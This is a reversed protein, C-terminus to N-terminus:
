ESVDARYVNACWTAAYLYGDRYTLDVVNKIPLDGTIEIWEAGGNKSHWVSGTNFWVPYTKATSVFIEDTDAPNFAVSYVYELTDEGLNPLDPFTRSFTHGHDESKYLGDDYVAFVTGDELAVIQQVSSYSLDVDNGEALHWKKGGNESYWLGDWYLGAFIRNSDTPDVELCKILRDEGAEGSGPAKKLRKWNDGYNTTRFLGKKLLDDIALYLTGPDNPDAAISVLFIDNDAIKEPLGNSKDQWSAGNNESRFVKPGKDTSFGVYVNGDADQEIGWAHQDVFEQEHDKQPFGPLWTAGLDSSSLVGVDMHSSLLTDDSFAVGTSCTNQTGIVKEQWNEGGDDSRWAGWWTTYYLREPDKPDVAISIVAQWLDNWSQHPAHATDFTYDDPVENGQWNKAGNTSKYFVSPWGAQGLYVINDDAPSVCIADAVYDDEDEEPLDARISEWSATDKSSKYPKTFTATAYIV